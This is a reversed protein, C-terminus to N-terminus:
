GDIMDLLQKRIDLIGPAIWRDTRSQEAKLFEAAAYVPNFFRQAREPAPRRSFGGLTVGSGDRFEKGEDWGMELGLYIHEVLGHSFGDSQAYKGGFKSHNM